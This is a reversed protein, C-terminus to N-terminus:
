GGYVAIHFRASVLVGAARNYTWVDIKIQGAAPATISDIKYGYTVDDYMSIIPIIDDVGYSTQITVHTKGAATNEVEVIANGRWDGTSLAKAWAVLVRDKTLEGDAVTPGPGNGSAEVYAANRSVHCSGATATTAAGGTGDIRVGKLSVLGQSLDAIWDQIANGWGATFVPLNDDIFSLIRSLPWAM